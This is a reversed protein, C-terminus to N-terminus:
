GRNASGGWVKRVILHLFFDLGAFRGAGTGALVLCAMSEVLQYNSSSPGTVPPYQGLFVSGLFGAAALAALPTFLGFLLCIGIALDFYPVLRNIRYTDMPGVPPKGMVIPPHESKQERTAVANQSAEYNDWVADIQVLIPEASEILERRIAERQGRLSDVGNRVEDQNLEDLRKLGLDYEDLTTANDDLVKELRTVANSYNLQALTEQDQNFDYHRAVRDRFQAWWLKTKELDRRMHGDADWVLQRYNEAFPGRANAFFPAADFSGSQYKDLGESYFHWGITLRLLVLMVAGVLGLLRPSLGWGVSLRLPILLLKQM